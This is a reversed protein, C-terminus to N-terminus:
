DDLERLGGIPRPPENEDRRPFAFDRTLFLSTTWTYANSAGFGNFDIQILGADRLLRTTLPHRDANDLVILGGPALLDPARGACQRRHRGDIVVVDFRGDNPGPDAAVYEGADTRLSVHANAPVQRNVEAHWAPDNEVSLVSAARAAWWLTSHGCGWELVARGGFDLAALYEIAPYTYWPIPNGAADVPKGSLTSAQHGLQTELIWLCKMASQQSQQPTPM